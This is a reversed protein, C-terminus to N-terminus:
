LIGYSKLEQENQAFGLVLKQNKRTVIKKAGLYGPGSYFTAFLDKRIALWEEKTRDSLYVPIRMTWESMKQNDNPGPWPVGKGGPTTFSLAIESAPFKSLFNKLELIKSDSMGTPPALQFFARVVMGLRTALEINKLIININGRKSKGIKQREALTEIGFGIKGCGSNAMIPILELLQPDGPDCLADWWVDSKAMERCVRMAHTNDHNFTLDMLQIINARYNLIIQNISIALEEASLWPCVKKRMIPSHCYKCRGKCGLTTAIQAVRQDQHLFPGVGQLRSNSVASVFKRDDSMIEYPNKPTEIKKLGMIELIKEEGPGKIVYDFYPKFFDPIITPGDGGVILKKEPFRKRIVKAMELTKEANCLVSSFLVTESHSIAFFLDNEAITNLAKQIFKLNVGAAKLTAAIILAGFNTRPAIQKAGLDILISSKISM